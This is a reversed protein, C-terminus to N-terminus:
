IELDIWAPEKRFGRSRVAHYALGVTTGQAHAPFFSLMCFITIAAATRAHIRLNVIRREVQDREVAAFLRADRKFIPRPLWLSLTEDTQAHLKQV